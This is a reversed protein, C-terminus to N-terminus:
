FVLVLFVGGVLLFLPLKSMAQLGLTGSIISTPLVRSMTTVAAGDMQTSTLPGSTVCLSDGVCTAGIPCCGLQGPCLTYGTRHNTNIYKLIRGLAHAHTVFAVSLAELVSLVQHVAVM